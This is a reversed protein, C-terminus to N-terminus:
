RPVYLPDRLQHAGFSCFCCFSEIMRTEAVNKMYFTFKVKLEHPERMNLEIPILLM